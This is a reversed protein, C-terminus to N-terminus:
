AFRDQWPLPSTVFCEALKDRNTLATRGGRDRDRNTAPEFGTVTLTDEYSYGDRSRVFNHLICCSRVIKMALHINVNMPRHFLRWKNSLIGFTCEIYRRARSLRYNFIKKNSSLNHGGYPRMLNEHLGFAEDGLIVYPINDGNETLPKANPINLTKNQLKTYFATDKFVGSDSSKGYAGVDIYLFNYNADCIALLVISFYHKYNFYMSGTHMPKIVRM